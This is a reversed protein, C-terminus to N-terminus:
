KTEQPFTLEVMRRVSMRIERLEDIESEMDIFAEWIREFAELENDKLFNSVDFYDDQLSM